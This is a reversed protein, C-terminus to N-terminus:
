KSLDDLVLRLKEMLTYKDDIQHKLDSLNEYSKTPIIKKLQSYNDKSMLDTIKIEGTPIFGALHGFITNVNLERELAIQDISKGTIFLELSVKKTDGKQKKPKLDEFVSISNSVEIDNEECYGKIVQLIETGYKEIRTKGMGHVDKLEQNTTPLIECMAYLSKQTFIQFHVLDERKAIQNRLERLLEFLEINTTGDIGSVCSKQSIRQM